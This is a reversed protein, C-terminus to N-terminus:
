FPLDDDDEIPHFDEPPIGYDDQSPSNDRNKRGSDLFQVEEAVVETVYIKTGDKAAYNRTQIRGSIAAQSGKNLYKSCNEGMSGWVVIPIFDAASEGEKNKRRNVALTFGSVPSGNTTYRLEPSKTLRGILIVKNM